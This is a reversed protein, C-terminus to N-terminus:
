RLVFTDLEKVKGTSQYWDNYVLHLKDITMTEFSVQRHSSLLETFKNANSIPSRFRMITLHATTLKYRRDISHELRSLRFEERLKERLMELGEHAPFGQILIGSKSATIGKLKIDIPHRLCKRIVEAYRLPSISHLQFGIYCSIISLITLHLDSVPYYYQNPEIERLRDQFQTIESKLKNNPKALLTIGRRNDHSSNILADTSCKGEQFQELATTWMENYHRGLNENM